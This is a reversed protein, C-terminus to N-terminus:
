IDLVTTQQKRHDSLAHLRDEELNIEMQLGQFELLVSVGEETM